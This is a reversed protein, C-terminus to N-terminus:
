VLLLPSECAQCCQPPAVQAADEEDAEGSSSEDALEGDSPASDGAPPRVQSSGPRGAGAGAKAPADAANGTPRSQTPPPPPGQSASPALSAEPTLYTTAATGQRLPRAEAADWYVSGQGDAASDAVGGAAAPLSGERQAGVMASGQAAAAAFASPLPVSVSAAAAAAPELGAGPEGRPAAAAESALQVAKPSPREHRRHKGAANRRQKTQATSQQM